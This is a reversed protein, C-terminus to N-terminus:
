DLWEKFKSENGLIYQPLKDKPYLNLKRKNESSKKEKIQSCIMYLKM